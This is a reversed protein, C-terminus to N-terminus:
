PASGGASQLASPFCCHVLEPVYQSPLSREELEHQELQDLDAQKEGGTLGPEQGPRGPLDLAGPLAGSFCVEDPRRDNVLERLGTGVSPRWRQPPQGGVSVFRPGPDQPVMVVGHALQDGLDLQDGVLVGAVGTLAELM